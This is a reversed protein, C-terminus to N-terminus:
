TSQGRNRLNVVPRWARGGVPPAQLRKGRDAPNRGEAERALPAKYMGGDIAQWEWAIGVMEDCEALGAQWLRLFFGKTEADCNGSKIFDLASNTMM